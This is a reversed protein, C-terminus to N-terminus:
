VVTKVPQTISGTVFLSFMIHIIQPAIDPQVIFHYLKQNTGDM